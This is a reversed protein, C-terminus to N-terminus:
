CTPGPPPLLLYPHIPAFPTFLHISPYIFPTQLFLLIPLHVHPFILAHTPPPDIVPLNPPRVSTLSKM